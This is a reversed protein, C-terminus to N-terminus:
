HIESSLVGPEKRFHCMWLLQIQCKVKWVINLKQRVKTEYSQGFDTVAPSHLTAEAGSTIEM